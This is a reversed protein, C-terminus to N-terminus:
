PSPVETAVPLGQAAIIELARDIPIRAIGNGEDVWDYSNLIAQQTAQMTHLDNAPDVQLRPEPPIVPTATTLPKQIDLSHFFLGTAGLVIVLAIALGLGTLFVGRTNVDKTEYGPNPHESM